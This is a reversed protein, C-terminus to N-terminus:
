FTNYYEQLRVTKNPPFLHMDGVKGHPFQGDTGSM